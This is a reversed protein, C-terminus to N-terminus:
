PKRTFLADDVLGGSQCIPQFECGSFYDCASWNHPFDELKGNELAARIQLPTLDDLYVWLESPQYERPQYYHGPRRAIDDRIRQSFQDSTETKKRQQEPKRIPYYIIRQAGTARAYIAMQLKYRAPCIEVETTFKFEWVTRSQDWYDLYGKAGEGCWQFTVPYQCVGNTPKLTAHDRFGDLSAFLKAEGDTGIIERDEATMALGAPSWNGTQIIPQLGRDFLRSIVLAQPDLRPRLRDLYFIKYKRRCTSFCQVASVSLRPRRARDGDQPAREDPPELAPAEPLLVAPSEAPPCTLLSSGAPTESAADVTSGAESLPVTEPGGAPEDIRRAVGGTLPQYFVCFLHAAHRCYPADIHVCTMKGGREVAVLDPCKQRAEALNMDSVM